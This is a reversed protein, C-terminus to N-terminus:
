QVLCVSTHSLYKPSCDFYATVICVAEETTKKWYAVPHKKCPIESGIGKIFGDEFPMEYFTYGEAPIIESYAKKFTTLFKEPSYELYDLIQVDPKVEAKKEDTKSKSCQTVVLSM